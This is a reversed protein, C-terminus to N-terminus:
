DTIFSYILMCQMPKKYYFHFLNKFSMIVGNTLKFACNKTYFCNYFRDDIIKVLIYHDYHLYNKM